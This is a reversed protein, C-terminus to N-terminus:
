LPGRLHVPSRVTPPPMDLHSPAPLLLAPRSPTQPCPFPLLPEPWNELMEPFSPADGREPELGQRWATVENWAALFDEPSWCLRRPQPEQSPLPCNGFFPIDPEAFNSGVGKWGCDRFSSAKRDGRSNSLHTRPGQAARPPQISTSNRVSCLDYGCEAPLVPRHSSAGFFLWGSGEGQERWEKGEERGM